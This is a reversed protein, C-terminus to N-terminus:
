RLSHPHGLPGGFDVLGFVELIWILIALIVVVNIITRIPAAMPVYTNLLYLGVGIVVLIVILGVLTM